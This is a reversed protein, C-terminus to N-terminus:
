RLRIIFDIFAPIMLALGFLTYIADIMIFFTNTLNNKENVVVPFQHIRTRDLPTMNNNVRFCITPTERVEKASILKRFDVIIIHEGQEKPFMLWSFKASFETGIEYSFLQPSNISNDSASLSISLPQSSISPEILKGDNDLERSYLVDYYIDIVEAKNVYMKNPYHLDIAIIPLNDDRDTLYQNIATLRNNISDAPSSMDSQPSRGAEKSQINEGRHVTLHVFATLCIIALGITALIDKYKILM